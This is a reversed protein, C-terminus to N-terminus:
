RGRPERRLGGLLGLAVEFDVPMPAEITLPDGTTPHPLRVRRAHLPTRGLFVEKAPELGLEGRLIQEVGAYASDVALPFGVYKLHVRIQHSRGTKPEAEILAFGPFREIVRFVTVSPKGAEGKSAPRAKGRRAAVLAVDVLLEPLPPEGRVLALYSKEVKGSAFSESMARHAEPSRAFILVGSTGRDIRHVVFLKEGRDRGLRDVLSPEKEGLRGRVALVGPPKDVAVVDPDEHLIRTM